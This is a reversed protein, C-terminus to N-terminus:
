NESGQAQQRMFAVKEELSMKRFADMDVTHKVELPNNSDGRVVLTNEKGPYLGLLQNIKDQTALMQAYLSPDGYQEKRKVKRSKLVTATEAPQLVEGDEGMVEDKVKMRGYERERSVEELKSREWQDKVDLYMRQLLEVQRNIGEQYSAVATERWVGRIWKLDKSVIVRNTAVRREYEKTGEPMGVPLLRMAIELQTHGERFLQAVKERRQLVRMDRTTKARQM